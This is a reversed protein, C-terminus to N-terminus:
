HRLYVCICTLHAIFHSSKFKDVSRDISPKEIDDLVLQNTLTLQFALHEYSLQNSRYCLNIDFADFQRDLRYDYFEYHVTFPVNDYDEYLHLNLYVPYDYPSTSDKRDQKSWAWEIHTVLWNHETDAPFSHVQGVYISCIISGRCARDGVYQLFRYSTNFLLLYEFKILIEIPNHLISTSPIIPATSNIKCSGTRRDIQYVRSSLNHYDIIISNPNQISDSPTYDFRILRRENTRIHRLRVSQWFLRSSTSADIRVSFEDPFKMGNDQLSVLEDAEILNECFVGNPPTPNVQAMLPKYHFINWIDIIVSDNKRKTLRQIPISSNSTQWAMTYTSTAISWIIDTENSLSSLWQDVHISGRQISSGIYTANSTLLLVDQLYRIHTSSDNVHTMASYGDLTNNIDISEVHCRKTPNKSYVAKRLREYYYFELNQANDIILRNLDYDYFIDAYTRSQQDDNLITELRFQVQNSFKPYTPTDQGNIGLIFILAVLNGVFSIM